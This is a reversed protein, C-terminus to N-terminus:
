KFETVKMNKWMVQIDMKQHVQLAITGVGASEKIKEDYLDDIIKVNNLWTTVHGDVVKLKVRNWKKEKLINEKGQPVKALWGRAYPEYIGGNGGHEIDWIEYQFGAVKTGSFTSYFFIGTNGSPIVQKFKCRLIFNKFEKETSLYGEEKDEGHEGILIGDEVYWKENGINVWGDLNKGNFIKTTKRQANSNINFSVIVALLTLLKIFKM